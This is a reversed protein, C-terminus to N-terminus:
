CSANLGAACRATDRVLGSRHCQATAHSLNLDAPAFTYVPDPLTGVMFERIDTMVQQWSTNAELKMNAAPEAKAVVHAVAQLAAVTYVAPPCDLSFLTL